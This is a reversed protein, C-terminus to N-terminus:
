TESLNRITDPDGRMPLPKTFELSSQLRIPTPEFGLGAVGGTHSQVLSEAERPGLKKM